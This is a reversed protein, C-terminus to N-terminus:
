RTQPVAGHAIPIRYKDFHRDFREIRDFGDVVQQTRLMLLPPRATKKRAATHSEFKKHINAVCIKFYLVIFFIPNNIHTSAM